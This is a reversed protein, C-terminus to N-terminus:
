PPRDLPRVGARHFARRPDSEVPVVM